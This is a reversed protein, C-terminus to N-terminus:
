KPWEDPFDKLPYWIYQNNVRYPVGQEDGLQAEIIDGNKRLGVIKILCSGAWSMWPAEFPFHTIEDGTPLRIGKFEPSVKILKKKLPKM